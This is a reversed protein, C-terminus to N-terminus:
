LDNENPSMHLVPTSCNDCSTIISEACDNGILVVNSLTAALMYKLHERFSYSPRYVIHTGCHTVIM